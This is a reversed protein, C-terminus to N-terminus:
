YLSALPLVAFRLRVSMATGPDQVDVTGPSATICNRM